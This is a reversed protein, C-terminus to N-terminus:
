NGDLARTKGATKVVERQLQKIEEKLTGYELRKRQLFQVTVLAKEELGKPTLIYAYALKNKNNKFNNAEIWGREVLAKLCYNAKGVSIGLTRALERQTIEPTAEIIRLIRLHIENALM